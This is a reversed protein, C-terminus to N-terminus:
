LEALVAMLDRPEACLLGVNALFALLGVVLGGFDILAEFSLM